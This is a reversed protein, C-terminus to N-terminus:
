VADDIRKQMAVCRIGKAKDSLFLHPAGGASQEEGIAISVDVPSSDLTSLITLFYDAAFGLKSIPKTEPIVKLYNPYEHDIPTVLLTNSRQTFSLKGEIMQVTLEGEDEDIMAILTEVSKAPCIAAFIDCKVKPLNIVMECLIHGNTAALTLAGDAFRMYISCLYVRIYDKAMFPTMKVLRDKFDASDLAFAATTRTALQQKAKVM